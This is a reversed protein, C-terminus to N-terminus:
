FSTIDAAKEARERAKKEEREKKRREQAEALEAQKKEYKAKQAEISDPDGNLVWELVLKAVDLPKKVQHKEILSRISALEAEQLETKLEAIKRLHLTPAWEAQPADKGKNQAERMQRKLEKLRPIIDGVESTLAESILEEQTDHPFEALAYAVTVNLENEDVLKQIKETLKVLSLRKKLSSESMNTRRALTSLTMMPNKGLIRILHQAYQAPTTQIRNNNGIIQAELLEADDMEVIQAPIKDLGAHGAATYRHLGDVLGYFEVKTDPDHQRRVVIPNLVGKSKISEVLLQFDESEEKVGRLATKSSRIESLPIYELAKAKSRYEEIERQESEPTERVTIDQDAVTSEESM